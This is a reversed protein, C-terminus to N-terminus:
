LTGACREQIKYIRVNHYAEVFDVQTTDPPVVALSDAVSLSDSVALSDSVSLSDPVALSDSVSLSDPVALSDSVALSDPVALSDSVSLSDPVALSDTEIGLTDSSESSTATGESM